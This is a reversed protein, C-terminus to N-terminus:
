AFSEPMKKPVDFEANHLLGSSLFGRLKAKRMPANHLAACFLLKQELAPDRRVAVQRKARFAMRPQHEELYNEVFGSVVSEERCDARLWCGRVEKGLGSFQVARGVAELSVSM